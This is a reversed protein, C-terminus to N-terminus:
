YRWSLKGFFSRRIEVRNPGSLGFEPHQADLLNQGVVSFELQDSVRLGLRVNLEVYGPVTGPTGNNNNVLTDVWRLQGDLEFGRPLDMSSNLSLQNAPDSTENL